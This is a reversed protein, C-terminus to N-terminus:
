LSSQEHGLSHLSIGCLPRWRSFTQSVFCTPVKEFGKRGRQSSHEELHLRGHTSNRWLNLPRAKTMGAPRANVVSERWVLAPCRYLQEAFSSM